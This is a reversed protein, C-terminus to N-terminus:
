DDARATRCMELFADLDTREVRIHDKRASGETRAMPFTVARLEGRNILYRVTRLPLGLEASVTDLDLLERTQQM